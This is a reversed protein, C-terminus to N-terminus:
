CLAKYLEAIKSIHYEESKAICKQAYEDYLWPASLLEDLRALFEEFNNVPIYCDGMEDFAKEHFAITPIGFSSANVLKLPNRMKMKYPRWVIQVDVKMFADVVDQRKAFKSYAYLTMGRKALEDNLAPPFFQLDFTCGIAGLTKIGTRTRRIREYNCNHQPIFVVRNPLDRKLSDYDFKSLAIVPVEPHKLLLSTLDWSDVIDLYPKGEFKFDEFNKVHPKVYICVDNEYGETPNLKAGLYEAIQNGRILSSVRM